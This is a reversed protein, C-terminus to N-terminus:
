HAHRNSLEHGQQTSHDSMFRTNALVTRAEGAVSTLHASTGIKQM